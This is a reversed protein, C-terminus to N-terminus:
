HWEPRFGQMMHLAKNRPVIIKRLPQPRMVADSLNPNDAGDLDWFYDNTAWVNPNLHIQPDGYDSQMEGDNFVITGDFVAIQLRDKGVFTTKSCRDWILNHFSENANQTGGHLCKKLLNDSSLDEFINRIEELVFEPLINKADCWSGCETHKGKRHYWIAWIAKKM